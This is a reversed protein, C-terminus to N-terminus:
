DQEHYCSYDHKELSKNFNLRIMILTLLLPLAKPPYTKFLDPLKYIFFNLKALSFDSVLDTIWAVEESHSISM